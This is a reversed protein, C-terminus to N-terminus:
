GESVKGTEGRVVWLHCQMRGFLLWNRSGLCVSNGLSSCEERREERRAQTFLGIKESFEGIWCSSQNGTQRTKLM